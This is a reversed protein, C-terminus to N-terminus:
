RESHLLDLWFFISTVLPKCKGYNFEVCFDICLCARLLDELNM